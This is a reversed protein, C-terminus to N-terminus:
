SRRKKKKRLKAVPITEMESTDLVGGPDFPNVVQPKEVPEDAYREMLHDLWLQPPEDAHIARNAGCVPCRLQFGVFIALCEGCAYGSMVMQFDKKTLGNLRRGDPLVETFEPILFGSVKTALSATV